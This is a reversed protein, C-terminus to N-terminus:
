SAQDILAQLNTVRDADKKAQRDSDAKKNEANVKQNNQAMELQKNLADLTIPQRTVLVLGDKTKEITQM